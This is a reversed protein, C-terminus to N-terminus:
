AAVGLSQAVLSQQGEVLDGAVEVDAGAGDLGPAVGAQEGAPQGVVFAFVEVLEWAGFKNAGADSSWAFCGWGVFCGGCWGCPACDSALQKDTPKGARAPDVLTGYHEALEAYSRNIKPNYLDPKDVGTKLNDPVLRAPVGGFLEFAVVHCETWARQDMALVPRVFMHRSAPLVMVSAWVRRKRGTRPDVWAGRHGYDIQAQGGPEPEDMLVTVRDRRVEEPLNAAVWRKLSALSAQLGQEDRLRQWITAQTDLRSCTRSTTM